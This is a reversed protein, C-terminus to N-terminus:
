AQVGPVLEGPGRHRQPGAQREAVARDRISGGAAIHRVGTAMRLHSALWTAEPHFGCASRRAQAGTRPHRRGGDGDGPPHLLDQQRPSDLAALDRRRGVGAVQRRGGPVAQHVGRGGRERGLRVCFLSQGTVWGNRLTQPEGGGDASRVKMTLPAGSGENYLISRANPSWAEISYPVNGASLRTRTGREADHIWIDDVDNEKAAIAVHRGDPSLEPFPWQEQPPGIPGLVKGSREVWVMQTMRSGTGKVHVLTGDSSVSPVDADPAVMFPEGTVEHRQLSFPLAWIGANAPHRRYLIHGTPSYVPFWIDQDAALRLLEKRQGHADLVLANPRAGQAHPVFLVSGDPLCSADHLDSEKDKVLPIVEEFDGGLAPVRSLGGDGNGVVIKGDPCWSAGSGGTLATRIDAIMASEGGGAPAKWLKGGAAYGIFASDPSWFIM